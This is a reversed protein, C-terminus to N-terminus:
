DPVQGCFYGFYGQKIINKSLLFCRSGLLASL